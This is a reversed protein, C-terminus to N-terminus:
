FEFSHDGNLNYIKRKIFLLTELLCKIGKSKSLSKIEVFKLIILLFLYNNIERAHVDRLQEAIRTRIVARKKVLNKSHDKLKALFM